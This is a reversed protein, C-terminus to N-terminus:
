DENEEILHKLERRAKRRNYRVDGHPGHGTQFGNFRPKKLMSQEFSSSKFVSPDRKKCNKKKKSM